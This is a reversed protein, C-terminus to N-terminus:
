VEWMAIIVKEQDVHFNMLWREGGWVCKQNVFSENFITISIKDRFMNIIGDMYM